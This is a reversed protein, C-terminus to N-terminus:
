HIAQDNEIEEELCKSCLMRGNWDTQAHPAGCNDCEPREKTAYKRDDYNDDDSMVAPLSLM